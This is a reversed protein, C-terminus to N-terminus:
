RCCQIQIICGSIHGSLLPAVCMTLAATARFGLIALQWPNKQWQWKQLECSFHPTMMVAQPTRWLICGQSLQTSNGDGCSSCGLSAADAVAWCVAREPDIAVGGM